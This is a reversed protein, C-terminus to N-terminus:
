GESGTRKWSILYVVRKITSKSVCFQDALALLPVRYTDRLHRIKIVDESTLKAAANREGWTSRGKNAMDQQNDAQTGVFMHDPNVCIPNDCKHCVNLEPDVAGVLLEYVARHAPRSKNKVSVRAHGYSDRSRGQWEWCGSSVIKVKEMVRNATLSWTTRPKRVYAARKQALAKNRRRAYRVKESSGVGNMRAALQEASLAM